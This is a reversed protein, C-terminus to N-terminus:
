KHMYITTYYKKFEDCDYPTASDWKCFRNFLMAKLTVPTNDAMEFLGLGVRVYESTYLALVGRGYDNFNMEVWAREYEWFLSTHYDTYPNDNEGQYYQCFHILDKRTM